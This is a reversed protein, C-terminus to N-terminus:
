LSSLFSSEGLIYATNKVSHDHENNLNQWIAATFVNCFDLSLFVSTEEWGKLGIYIM